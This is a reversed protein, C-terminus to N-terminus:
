GALPLRDRGGLYLSQVRPDHALEVAPAHAAVRGNVLVYAYDAVELAATANQEVLVITLGLQRRLDALTRLLRELVIPALGLSLEDVLLVRPACQLACALALMQREGGSLYGSLVRRRQALQPFLEFARDPTGRSIALNQEVTLTTFLKDREPVLVVGARATREPSWGAISRGDLQIDGGIIRAPESDLFGGIARLVTTKGAGNAGVLAVISGSQVHLSVGHLATAQGYAVSLDAIDLLAALRPAAKPPAIVRVTRRRFRRPLAVLGGPEGLIFAAPIAGFLVYQLAFSYLKLTQPVPITAMVASVVQPLLVVFAAGALAGVISTVGGVLVMALYQV